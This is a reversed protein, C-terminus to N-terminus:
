IPCYWWYTELYDTYNLYPSFLRRQSYPRIWRRDKFETAHTQTHVYQFVANECAIDMWENVCVAGWSEHLYGEKEEKKEKEEEVVEEWPGILAWPAFSENQSQSCCVTLAVPGPDGLTVLHDSPTLSSSSVFFKTRWLYLKIHQFLLVAQCWAFQPQM